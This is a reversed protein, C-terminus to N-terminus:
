AVLVESEVAFNESRSGASRATGAIAANPPCKNAARLVVLPGCSQDQAGALLPSEVCHSEPSQDSTAGLVVVGSVFSVWNLSEFLAATM